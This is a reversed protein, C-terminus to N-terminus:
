RGAKNGASHPEAARPDREEPALWVRFRASSVLPEPEAPKEEEDEDSGGVLNGFGCVVAGAVAGCLAFRLVSGIVIRADDHWLGLLSGFIM